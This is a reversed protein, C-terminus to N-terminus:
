DIIEECTLYLKQKTNESKLDRLARRDVMLKPLWLIENKANVVVPWSDREFRPVKKDVFFDQLKKSGKMGQPMVKDGAQRNRVLLKQKAVEVSNPKNPKNSLLVVMNSGIYPSSQTLIHTKSSVQKKVDPLKTTITITDYDVWIHLDNKLHRVSQGNTNEIFKEASAITSGSLNIEPILQRFIHVLLNMAIIPALQKFEVKQLVISNKNQKIAVLNLLQELQKDIKTNLETLDNLTKIFSHHFNKYILSGNPVLEHRVFNRSFGIDSNTSDTIYPLNQLGAYAIIEAKSFPLLPRVIKGRRQRMAVIGHRDAGRITNFIATEIRDNSHHAVVINDYNIDSLTNELFEYRAARLAAESATNGEYKLLYFPLDKEGAMAAVLEADKYSDARQRHDYHAVALKWGYIVQLKTLLHLLTVSDVGGSVAVLLKSQPPLLNTNALHTQFKTLM